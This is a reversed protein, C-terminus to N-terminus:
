KTIEPVSVNLTPSSTKSAARLGRDPHGAVREVRDVVVAVRVGLQQDERGPEVFRRGLLWSSKQGSHPRGPLSRRSASTGSGLVVELEDGGARRGPPRGRASARARPRCRRGRVRACSSSSSSAQSRRCRSRPKLQHGHRSRALPSSTPEDAEVGGLDFGLRHDLDAPRDRGRAPALAPPRPRAPTARRPTRASRATSITEKVITSFWGRPPHHLLEPELVHAVELARGGGRGRGRGASPARLGVARLAREARPVASALLKGNRLTWVHGMRQALAAGSESGRMHMTMVIAVRGDPGEAVRHM